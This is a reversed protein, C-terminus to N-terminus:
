IIVQPENENWSGENRQDAGLYVLSQVFGFTSDILIMSSNKTSVQFLELYMYTM